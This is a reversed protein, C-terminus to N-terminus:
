KLLWGKKREEIVRGGGKETLIEQKEEPNWVIFSNIVDSNKVKIKSSYFFYTHLLQSSRRWRRRTLFESARADMETEPKLPCQRRGKRMQLLLPPSPPPCLFVVLFILGGNWPACVYTTEWANKQVAFFSTISTSFFGWLNADSKKERQKFNKSILKM